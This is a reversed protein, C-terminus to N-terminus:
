LKAEPTRQPKRFLNFVISILVQTKLPNLSLESVFFSVCFCLWEKQFEFSIWVLKYLAKLLACLKQIIVRTKHNFAKKLEPKLFLVFLM